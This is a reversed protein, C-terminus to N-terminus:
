KDEQLAMRFVIRIRQQALEVAVDAPKQFAFALGIRLHWAAIKIGAGRGRQGRKARTREDLACRAERPNGRRRRARRM